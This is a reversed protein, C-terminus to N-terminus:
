KKPIMEEGRNENKQTMEKEDTKVSNPLKQNGGGGGEGM